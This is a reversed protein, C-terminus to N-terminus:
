LFIIPPLSFPQSHRNPAITLLISILLGLILKIFLISAGGLGVLLLMSAIDSEPAFIYRAFCAVGVIAGTIISFSIFDLSGSPIVISDVCMGVSCRGPRLLCALCNWM